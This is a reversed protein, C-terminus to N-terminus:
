KIKNILKNIQIEVNQPITYVTILIKILKKSKKKILHYKNEKYVNMIIILFDNISTSLNIM